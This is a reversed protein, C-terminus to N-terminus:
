PQLGITIHPLWNRRDSVFFALFLFYIEISLLAIQTTGWPLCTTGRPTWSLISHVLFSILSLPKTTDHCSGDTNRMGFGRWWQCLCNQSWLTLHHIRTRPLASILKWYEIKCGWVPKQCKLSPMELRLCIVPRSWQSTWCWITQIIASAVGLSNM